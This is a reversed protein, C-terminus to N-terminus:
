SFREWLRSKPQARYDRPLLAREREVLTPHSYHFRSYLPHPTLNSLNKENLKRLATVLSDPRGLVGAAYADAEYEHRRAWGNAVPALWFTVVGSLLGFLLFAPVVSGPAFGFASYFWAQEALWGVVYLGVLLGAASVLLRKRVHRKRYHGIEHALVAELELESLQQVLTDFLVIRRFRGFGTFFANSHRSRRSGDMVQIGRARFGTREALGVLRERLSGEALPTFRNFLPLIVVPALFAMLCQVALITLWAWFWWTSGLWEVLKLVLALLPIGLLASLGLGKLRDAWWLQPRTTNFGFREELHFQAYWQFPLGTLALGAGVAFVFGAMAWASVGLAGVWGHYALPLLGTYLVAVLVLTDYGSEFRTLRSRALTYAVSRAYTQTDVVAAYASPVETGRARVYRDNLWELSLEGALRALILALVVGGCAQVPDFAM